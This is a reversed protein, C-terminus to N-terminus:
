GFDLMMSSIKFNNIIIAIIILFRIKNKKRSKIRRYITHYLRIIM